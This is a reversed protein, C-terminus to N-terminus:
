LMFIIFLFGLQFHVLVNSNLKSRTGRKNFAVYFFFWLFDISSRRIRMLPADYHANSM